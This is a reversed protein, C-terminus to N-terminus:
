QAPLSLTMEQSQKSELGNEDIASVRYYYKQGAKIEKDIFEPTLVKTYRLTEGFLLSDKKYVVYEVARNDQPQWRIVASNGEIQAYTITVPAPVELTSGVIPSTALSEIGDKDKAVIKYYYSQGDKDIKDQYQTNNSSLEVVKFYLTSEFNSRTIIYATVEPNPHKNWKLNIVRPFNTTAQFGTMVEPKPKTTASSSASPPSLTKNANFAFIRYEYTTQDELDKDLYEVLLRNKIETLKTWEGKANKREILYGTIRTDNHPNWILKVKRPYNGIAQFYSLPELTLTTAKIPPSYASANNNTDYSAIQYEYQTNSQLNHDAYHTQFRSDLTAIKKFNAENAAKRYIHYGKVQSNNVLDWEFAITNVDNLTRINTPPTINTNLTPNSSMTSCGSIWFVLLCLSFLLSFFQKMVLVKM